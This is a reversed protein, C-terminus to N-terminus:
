TDFAHKQEAFTRLVSDWDLKNGNEAYINAGDIIYACQITLHFWNGGYFTIKNGIVSPNRYTTSLFILANGNKHMYQFWNSLKDSTLRKLLPINERKADMGAGKFSVDTDIIIRTNAYNPIETSWYSVVPYFKKMSELVKQRENENAFGFLCNQRPLLHVIIEVLSGCTWKDNIKILKTKM